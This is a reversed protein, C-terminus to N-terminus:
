TGVLLAAATLAALVQSVRDHIAFAVPDDRVRGRHAMLWMYTVWVLTLACVLWLFGHRWHQGDLAPVYTMLVFVAVYGSAVGTTMVVDADKDAYGRARARAGLVPRLLILEAYRKLLALSLFLFVCFALLLPALALGVAASGAVVRLAYGTALVLVDVIAMERLRLCYALMLACYGGLVALFPRPLPLALVVAAALLVPAAGLAVRIPLRGSALPRERKHPHTRDAPIDLLDNVLYVFCACLTLSAFALAARGFSAVEWFRHAALLPAFVLLNKLWHSPRVAEFLARARVSAGDDFVRTVECARAAARSASRTPRVLILRRAAGWRRRDSRCGGVLDFGQVGYRRALAEAPVIADFLALDRAVDVALADDRVGVLVVSTGRRKEQRLWAVLDQQYPLTHADATHADPTAFTERGAAGIVPRGRWRAPDLLGSPRPKARALLAELQLDTRVLAGDLEVAIPVSAGDRQEVSTVTLARM